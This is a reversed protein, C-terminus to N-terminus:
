RPHVEFAIEQIRCRSEMVASCILDAMDPASVKNPHEYWAAKPTDTVCPKALVIRPWASKNWLFECGENLSQKTTRYIAQRHGHDWRQTFSSSVNVITRQQDQWAEHLMFLLKTQQFEHTANNFFVDAHEAEQVIRSLNHDDRIDHGTARSFGLVQHGRSQMWRAIELGIGATHGTIAVIM